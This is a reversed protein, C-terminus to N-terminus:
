AERTPQEQNMVGTMEDKREDLATRFAEGYSEEDAKKWNPRVSTMGGTAVRRNTITYHIVVHNSGTRAEEDVKWHTVLTRGIARANAVTLCVSHHLHNDHHFTPYNHVNLLSLSKDQLWEAVALLETTMQECHPHHLSFDRSNHPPLYEPLNLLNM